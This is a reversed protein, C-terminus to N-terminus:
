PDISPEYNKELFQQICNKAHQNSGYVIAAFCATNDLIADVVRDSPDYGCEGIFDYILIRTM